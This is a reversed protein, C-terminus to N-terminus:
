INIEIGSAIVNWEEPVKGREYFGIDWQAHADDTGAERVIATLPSILGSNKLYALLQEKAVRTIHLSIM